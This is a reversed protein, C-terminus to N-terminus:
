AAQEVEREAYHKITRLFSVVLMLAVLTNRRSFQRPNGSHVSAHRNFHKPVKDGRLPFYSEYARILPAMSTALIFDVMVAEDNLREVHGPVHAHRVALHEFVLSDLICALAMQAVVLSGARYADIAQRVFGVQDSVQDFGGLVDLSEEVDELLEDAHQLIITNRTKSSAAEVLDRVINARPVWVLPIGDRTQVRQARDHRLDDPWNPPLLEQMWAWLDLAGTLKFYNDFVTIKPLNIGEFVNLNLRTADEFIRLSPARVSTALNTAEFVAHVRLADSIARSQLAVIPEFMQTVQATLNQSLNIQDLIGKSLNNSLAVGQLLKLDPVMSKLWADQGVVAKAIADPEFQEGM